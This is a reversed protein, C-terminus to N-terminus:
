ANQTEEKFLDFITLQQVIPGKTKKPPQQNRQKMTKYIAIVQNDHMFQVRRRWKDSNYMQSIYNRMFEVTM